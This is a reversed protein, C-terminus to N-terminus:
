TALTASTPRTAGTTSKPCWSCARGQRGIGDRERRLDGQPHQRQPYASLRPHHHHRRTRGRGDGRGQLQPGAQPQEGSYRGPEGARVRWELRVDSPVASVAEGGRSIIGHFRVTDADRFTERNAHMANIAIVAANLANTGLHPLAGAHSGRGIFRVFKAVHGNCTGGVSLRLPGELDRTHVHLAMQMDKFEDRKILEQKGGLFEIKGEERLKLRWEIDIFERPPPCRLPHNSRGLSEMVGTSKLGILSGMLSAIQVHHGCAHAAGNGQDAFPHDPVRLSDLEGLLGVAPGPGAGGELLGRVGTLALGDQFPIGWAARVM